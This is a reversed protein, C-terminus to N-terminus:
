SLFIKFFNLLITLVVVLDIRRHAVTESRRGYPTEVREHIAFKLLYHKNTNSNKNITIIQKPLKYLSFRRTLEDKFKRLWKLLGLMTSSGPYKSARM